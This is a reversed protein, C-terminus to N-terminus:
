KAARRLCKGDRTTTHVYFCCLQKGHRPVLPQGVDTISPTVHGSLVSPAPVDAQLLPHTIPRDSSSTSVSAYRPLFDGQSTEERDSLGVVRDFGSADTGQARVPVPCHLGRAQSSVFLPGKQLSVARFFWELSATPSQVACATIWVGHRFLVGACTLPVIPSGNGPSLPRQPLSKLPPRKPRDPPQAGGKQCVDLCTGMSRSTEVRVGLGVGSGPWNDLREHKQDNLGSGLTEPFVPPRTPRAHRRSPHATAVLFSERVGKTRELYALSEDPNRGVLM